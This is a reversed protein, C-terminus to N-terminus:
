LFATLIFWLGTGRMYSGRWDNVKKLIKETALSICTKKVNEITESPLLADFASRTRDHVAGPVTEEWLKMLLAYAKLYKEHMESAVVKQLKLFLYM